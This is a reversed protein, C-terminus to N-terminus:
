RDTRIAAPDARQCPNRGHLPQGMRWQDLGYEARIEGGSLSIFFTQGFSSFFCLLFGGVLWRANERLFSFYSRM